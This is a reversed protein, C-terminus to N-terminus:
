PAWALGSRRSWRVTGPRCPPSRGGGRRSWRTPTSRRASRCGRTPCGAREVGHRPPRHAGGRGADHAPRGCAHFHDFGGPVGVRREQPRRDGLQEHGSATRTAASSPVRARSSGAPGGPDVTRWRRAWAEPRPGSAGAGSSRGPVAGCRSWRRSRPGPRRHHGSGRAHGEGVVEGGAHDDGQRMFPSRREGGPRRRGRPGTAGQAVQEGQGRLEQRRAQHCRGRQRLGGRHGEGTEGADQGAEAPEVGAVPAQAELDAVALCGMPGSRAVRRGGEAMEPLRAAEHPDVGHGLHRARRQTVPVEAGPRGRRPGGQGVGHDLAEASPQSPEATFPTIRAPPLPVRSWGSVRIM